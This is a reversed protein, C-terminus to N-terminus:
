NKHVFPQRKSVVNEVKAQQQVQVPAELEAHALSCRGGCEPRGAVHRQRLRDMAEAASVGEVAAICASVVTGTRGHGGYCHVYVCQQEAPLPLPKDGNNHARQHDAVADTAAAVAEATPDVVKILQQIEQVRALLANDPVVGFDPIPM